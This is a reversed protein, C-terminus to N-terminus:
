EIIKNLLAKDISIQLSHESNILEVLMKDKGKVTVL